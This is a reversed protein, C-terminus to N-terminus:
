KTRLWEAVPQDALIAALRNRDRQWIARRKIAIGAEDLIKMAQAADGPGIVRKGSPEGVLTGLGDYTVNDTVIWVGAQVVPYSAQAAHLARLATALDAQQPARRVSFSDKEGPINLPKNACAAPISAVIWDDSNLQVSRAETSILNQNAADAAVFYTGVPIIVATGDPQARKIRLKVSRIGSGAIQAEIKHRALLDNIDEGPESRPEVDSPPLKVAITPLRSDLKELAEQTVDPLASTSNSALIAGKAVLVADREAAIEALISLITERVSQNADALARDLAQRKGTRDRDLEEFDQRTTPQQRRSIEKAYEDRREEIQQRVIAAAKSQGILAQMDVIMLRLRQPELPAAGSPPAGTAQQAQVLGPTASIAMLAGLCLVLRLLPERLCPM